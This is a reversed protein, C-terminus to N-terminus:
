GLLQRARPSDAPIVPSAGCASCADYRSSVRWLSYILGPVLFCLWLVLEIAFSGRTLRRPPAVTGCTPCFKPQGATARDRRVLLVIAIVLVVFVTLGIM